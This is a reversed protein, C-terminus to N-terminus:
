DWLKVKATIIQAPQVEPLIITMGAPLIAGVSSLGSNVSLIKEVIGNDTSGYQKWAIYDVTDGDKTIYNLSM